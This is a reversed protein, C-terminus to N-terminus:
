KSAELLRSKVFDPDLSALFWGIKPGQKQGLFATYIGQFLKKSSIGSEEAAVYILSHIGEADLGQIQHSLQGLSKRVEPSLNNVAPPVDEQLQFKVFTPAYKELWVEANAARSMILERDSIDYGGRSLVDLLQDRDNRAIQVANVMHKYPISFSRVSGITSLELARPDVAHRDYEEVLSLLSLGPDFEIHKEPKSRIIFYRLVEPPVVDLMDRITVVVGTSSHMAGKGKLHIWEYVLPPPPQYGYIEQSILKGTDYSGGATAHDKGFPEVTINLISWRAPWDVRWALKGGGKMSATGQHGCSCTYNVTEQDLDFGVVKTTNLRGCHMCIVDFPYWDSPLDRGSVEKLIRAIDDRRQLATKIVDVYLGEKYMRDARYVEANIGLQKMSDLFPLLFHDAYSDCCGDPCPIESLPKGVHAEFSEPLFPYLRRLPDFTDAIYILRADIGKDLLARYVADATMVERMNGLHIQGSPTIGTAVTQPGRGALNEAVVDAWHISMAM